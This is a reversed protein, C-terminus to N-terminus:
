FQRHRRIWRDAAALIADAAATDPPAVAYPLAVLDCGVSQQFESMGASEDLFQRWDEGILHAVRTRPYAALATRRLLEPIQTLRRDRRITALARLAERRYADARWRRVVRWALRGLVAILIAAVVYWAPAPPWWPVPPPPALEVLNAMWPNGFEGAPEPAANATAAVLLGLPTAALVTRRATM